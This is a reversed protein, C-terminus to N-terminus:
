MLSGPQRGAVIMAHRASARGQVTVLRAPQGAIFTELTGADPQWSSEMM